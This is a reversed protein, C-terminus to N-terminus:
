FVSYVGFIGIWDFSHNESQDALLSFCNENILCCSLFRWHKFAHLIFNWLELWCGWKLFLCCCISKCIKLEWKIMMHGHAISAPTVWLSWKTTVHSTFHWKKRSVFCFDWTFLFLLMNVILKVNQIPHLYSVWFISFSGIVIIPFENDVWFEHYFMNKSLPM